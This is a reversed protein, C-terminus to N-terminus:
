FPKEDAGLVQGQGKLQAFLILHQGQASVTGSQPVPIQLRQTEASSTAAFRNMSRAVSVHTLVRGSNEGRSVSSRDTNDAIVAVIEASGRPINGRFSYDVTLLKGSLSVANIQLAASQPGRKRELARKLGTNDNGVIQEEGDIVMQPTYVSELQFRKAYEAQRQTYIEASFPDSWGMHNWYTVHESIGIIHLGAETQKGEIQQLLVDAPPCSSCGESTFLEVVIAEKASEHERENAEVHKPLQSLEFAAISFALLIIRPIVKTSIQM